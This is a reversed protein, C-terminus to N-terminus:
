RVVTLGQQVGTVVAEMRSSAQMKELIRRVHNKVTNESIGLEEAIRRNSRGSAMLDLVQRERATLNPGTATRRRTTGSESLDDPLLDGFWGDFRQGRATLALRQPESRIQFGARTAVSRSTSNGVQAQWQIVQLGLATFGWRCALRLSRTALGRGRAWAAVLYGVDAGGQEDLRLDITGCWRDDALTIAWTPSAWWAQIGAPGDPYIGSIWAQADALDYPSPVTTWQVIQPDQCGQAILPADDPRPPRLLVVGDSLVPPTALVHGPQSPQESAV